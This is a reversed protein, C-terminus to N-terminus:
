GNFEPLSHQVGLRFGLWITIAALFIICAGALKLRRVVANVEEPPVAVGSEQRRVFRHGLGLSQYVSFIVLVFVFILKLALAYGFQQVFSQRYAAKLATLQFAGTFLVIGLAGIHLPNYLKLARVLFEIRLRHGDVRSLAPLLILWWGTVAGVYV